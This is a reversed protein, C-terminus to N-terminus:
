CVMNNMKLFFFFEDALSDWVEFLVKTCVLIRHLAKEKKFLTRQPRSQSEEEFGL